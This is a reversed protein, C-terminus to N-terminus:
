FDFNCKSSSNLGFKLNLDSQNKYYPKQYITPHVSKFPISFGHLTESHGVFLYGGPPLYKYLARFLKEQTQRDFYIIVNRCFIIDVPGINKFNYEMLNMQKFQVLKRLQPTVRVRSKNRDKSRMLYKMKLQHPIHKAKEDSYIAAKAKQIALTSVDTGTLAFKFEPHMTQFDHLVMALTYAEEGTACGASWVSLIKKRKENNVKIYEKLIVNNLFDFHESERFFDTKNTTVVDVMNAIEPTGDRSFLYSCYQDFSDLQLIRLRKMLRAQLMDKKYPPMKIGYDTHIFRSLRTFNRESIQPITFYNDNNTITAINNIM